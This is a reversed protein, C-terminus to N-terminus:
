PSAAKKQCAITVIGNDYLRNHNASFNQAAAYAEPPHYISPYETGAITYAIISKDPFSEFPESLTTENLLRSEYKQPQLYKGIHILVKYDGVIGGNKYYANIFDSVSYISTLGLRDDEVVLIPDNVSKPNVEYVTRISAIITLLILCLLLVKRSSIHDILRTSICIFPLTLSLLVIAITRIDSSSSEPRVSAGMYAVVAISLWLLLWTLCTVQFADKKGKNTKNRKRVLFLLLMIAFTLSLVFISLYAASCMIIDPQALISARQWPMVRQPIEGYLIQHLFEIFGTLASRTYTGLSTTYSYASFLLYGIPILAYVIATKKGFFSLLLFFSILLLIGDTNGLTIGLIALIIILSKSRNEFGYSFLFWMAILTLLISFDTARGSRESYAFSISMFAVLSPIITVIGKKQNKDILKRQMTKFILIGLLSALFGYTVLSLYIGIESSFGGVSSLFYMTLPQLFFYSHTYNFVLTNQRAYEHTMVTMESNLSNEMFEATFFNSRWTLFFISSFILTISVIKLRTKSDRSMGYWISSAILFIFTIIIAIRSLSGSINYCIINTIVLTLNIAILSVIKALEKKDSMSIEDEREQFEFHAEISLRTFFLRINRM